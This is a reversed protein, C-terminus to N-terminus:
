PHRKGGTGQRHRKGRIHYCPCRIGGRKTDTGQRRSPKPRERHNGRLRRRPFLDKLERIAKEKEVLDSIDNLTEIGGIIKGKANKLVTANKLAYFLSGDKRRMQCRRRVVEGSTFLPCIKEIQGKPGAVFCGDCDLLTCSKGILEESTYGTIDRMAKNVTIIIGDTDVVMVGNMMTDVIVKWYDGLDRRM